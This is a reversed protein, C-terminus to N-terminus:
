DSEEEEIDFENDETDDTFEEDEEIDPTSIKKYAFAMAAIIVILIGIFMFLNTRYFPIPYDELSVTEESSDQVAITETEDVQVQTLMYTTEYEVEVIYDNRTPLRFTLNGDETYGSWVRDEKMVRVHVDCLEEGDNDETVVTLYYVEAQLELKWTDEEESVEFSDSYIETRRWNVQVDWEAAPIRSVAEGNEDTHQSQYLKEIEPYTIRVEAGSLTEGLDDIIEMDVYYVDADISEDTNSDLTVDDQSITVEKWRAELTQEGRPLRFEIMGDEDTARDAILDSGETIESHTIFVRANEVPEGEVDLLEYELYYIDLELEITDDLRDGEVTETDQLVQVDRWYATVTVEGNEGYPTPVRTTFLGNETRGSDVQEDGVTTVISARDVGIGDSDLTEFTVHHIDEVAISMDRSAGIHEEDEYVTVGKWEIETLHDGVPLRMSVRGHSGTTGSEILSGGDYLSISADDLLEGHHDELEFDVHYISATRTIESNDELEYTQDYVQVGRWYIRINLEEGPLRSEPTWGNEDTRMEDLLQGQYRTEVRANDVSEGEEDEVQIELEYVDCEIVQEEMDEVVDRSKEAVQVGKWLVEFNHEGSPLRVEGRGTSSLVVSNALAGTEENYVRLRAGNMDDNDPTSDIAHVEVYYIELTIEVSRNETLEIGETEGVSVGRWRAEIDYAFEGTEPLRMVTNGDVDTLDANAVRETDDYRFTLHVDSVSEQREDEVTVDMYHVSAEIEFFENTNLEHSSRDVVKTLWESRLSYEGEPLQQVEVTGDEGTLVRVSTGNPHGMHINVNEIPEGAVDVVRYTPTYVRCSMELADERSVHQDIELETENVLVDQWYVRVENMGGRMSVNTIGEHDTHNYAEINGDRIVQVEANEMPRDLTDLTQLNVHYREAGIWLVKSSSELHGGYTEDGPNDPYRYHYGTNDVASVIATYEGEDADSYDWSYTYDLRYSTDDGEILEMNERYLVTEEPGEITLYVAHVDYGGFPDTISANFHIVPEDVDLPFNYREEYTSDMATFTEPEIYTPTSMELRSPYESDGFAVRTEVQDNNEFDITIRLSSGESLEHDFGGSVSYENFVTRGEDHEEFASGIFIEDGEPTIEYLSMTLEVWNTNGAGSRMDIWVNTTATGELDFDGAFPPDLYWSMSFAASSDWETIMLDEGITTNMTMVDPNENVTATENHLYTTKEKIDDEMMKESSELENAEEASATISISLGLILLGIVTMLCAKKLGEMMM